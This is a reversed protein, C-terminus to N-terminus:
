LTGGINFGITPAAETAVRPQSSSLVTAFMSNAQHPTRVQARDVVVEATELKAALFRVGNTAPVHRFNHHLIKAVCEAVQEIAVIDKLAHYLPIIKDKIDATVKTTFLDAIQTANGKFEQHYDSPYAKRTEEFLYAAICLGVTMGEKVKPAVPYFPGMVLAVINLMYISHERGFTEFERFLIHKVCEPLENVMMLVQEGRDASGTRSAGIAFKLIPLIPKLNDQSPSIDVIQLRANAYAQYAEVFDFGKSPEYDHIFFQYLVSIHQATEQHMTQCAVMMNGDAEPPPPMAGPVDGFYEMIFHFLLVVKPIGVFKTVAQKPREIQQLESFTCPMNFCSKILARSSEDFANFAPFLVDTSTLLKGLAEDHDEPARAFRDKYLNNIHDTKGLDNILAAYFMGTHLEVSTQMLFNHMGLFSYNALTDTPNGFPLVPKRGPVLHQKRVFATYANETGALSLLFCHGGVLARAEEMTLDVGYYKKAASSAHMSAEVSAQASGKYLAFEPVAKYLAPISEGLFKDIATLDACKKLAEISNILFRHLM